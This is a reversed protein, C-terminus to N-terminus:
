TRALPRVTAMITAALEEDAIDGLVAWRFVQMHVAGVVAWARAGPDPEGRLTLQRALLDALLDFSAKLVARSGEACSGESLATGVLRKRGLLADVLVDVGVAFGEAESRARGLAEAAAAHLDGVLDAVLEELVDEKSGFRAYFATTSCDMAALVDRLSCAAFGREAFLGEAASLMLERNPKGKVARSM